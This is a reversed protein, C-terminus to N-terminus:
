EIEISINDELINWNSFTLQLKVDYIWSNKYSHTPNADNSVEGDWFSWFYATIQWNSEKSSFDIWQWVITKKMSATIKALQPRPKLILKETTEYKEWDDTVVTLKITYEWPSSYKHWPNIADREEITWDGYDYIFKDINKWKVESKSADFRVITPAYSDEKELRLKIIADKKVAEIYVKEKVELIEWKIRRNLFKYIVDVVYNWELNVTYNVLKGTKDISWDAWFDWNIEDLSYMPDSSRIFRADLKLENPIPLNDIFYENNAELYRVNNIEQDEDHFKLIWSTKLRKPIKVTVKITKTKGSSDILDVSVEKDWYTHFRTKIQSSEELNDVEANKSINEDELKWIFKEIFWNWFDTSPNKVKLTYKLDDIPDQVYIIEWSINNDSFTKVIFIKDLIEDERWEKRIYMGFMTEDFIVKSPIFKPWSFALNIKEWQKTKDIIYWEIQWLKELDSADFKVSKWWNKLITETVKIVSWISVPQIDEIKKELAQWTSDTWIALVTVNYTWKEVFEKILHPNIEEIKEWNFDWVYKKITFWKSIENNAWVTLDYKLTIPWILNSTDTILSTWKDFQWSTLKSNDFIQVNWYSLEQWNPLSDIKKTILMWASATSFTFILLFISIILYSIRKRKYSKKTLLFKFLYIALVITEVLVLSSFIIAVLKAIFNNIDNLSIWLSYFFKVDELNKANMVVFTIFAWWIVLAVVWIAWIVGLLTGISMKKANWANPDTIIESVKLFLKEWFNSPVTKSSLSYKKTDIKLEWIWEQEAKTDEVQLWTVSKAKLIIWSYVPFKIYRTEKEVKDKRFSIKVDDQRPEIIFFDYSERNVIEILDELSNTNIDIFWEPAIKSVQEEKTSNSIDWVVPTQALLDDLSNIENSVQSNTTEVKEGEKLPDLM